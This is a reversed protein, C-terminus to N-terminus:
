RYRHTIPAVSACPRCLATPLGSNRRTRGSVAKFVEGSLDEDCQICDNLSGDEKHYPAELLQMCTLFCEEQTHRTNYYWIQACPKDFGLDMLCQMHADEGKLANDIGCQRVPGALDNQRIYVGLDVLPSCRGCAGHHTIAAGAELAAAPSDYTELSYTGPGGTDFRIGCAKDQELLWASPEEYPDRELLPLPNVLELAELAAIEEEGYEVAEFAVGECACSPGCQEATLGTTEVPRGFLAPCPELSVEDGARIADGAGDGDRAVDGPGAGAVELRAKVDQVGADGGSCCVLSLAVGVAALSAFFQYGRM